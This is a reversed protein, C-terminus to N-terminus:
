MTQDLDDGGFGLGVPIEDARGQCVAGRADAARLGAPVHICGGIAEAGQSGFNLAGVEAVPDRRHFCDRFGGEEGAPVAAGGQAKQEGDHACQAHIGGKM